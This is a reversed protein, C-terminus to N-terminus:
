SKVEGAMAARIIRDLQDGDVVHVYCDLEERGISLTRGLRGMNERLWRYTEADRADDSPHVYLPEVLVDLTRLNEMACRSSTTYWRANKGADMTWRWAVPDSQAIESKAMHADIADIMRKFKLWSALPLPPKGPACEARLAELEDRVQALTMEAM